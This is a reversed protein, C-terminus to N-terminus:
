SCFFVSKRGSLLCRFTPFAPCKARIPASSSRSKRFRIQAWCISIWAISGTCGSLGMLNLYVKESPAFYTIAIILWILLFSFLVGRAPVGSPNLKGFFQPSMRFDSLAHLTRTAAYLASNACSLAGAIIFISFIKAFSIFGYSKLAEAFVSSSINASQWPYILALLFMPTVYLGTVILSIRKMARSIDIKPNEAESAALGIIETGQYNLIMIIMNVFFVVLGNPFMGEPGLLNRTGIFTSSPALSAFFIYIALVAFSIFLSFHIFTLWFSVRGMLRVHRLNVFTIGIAFLTAWIHVPVQPIFLHSLIGAAICETPTYLVWNLWYCWGVACSYDPSIHDKSYALFSHHTPVENGALEAMCSMTLHAILGGFIFALFAFPGMEHLLYGNGLFYTSSITGGIAIALIHKYKLTRSFEM